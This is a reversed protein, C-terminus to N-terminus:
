RPLLLASRIANSALAYFTVSAILAAFLALMAGFAVAAAVMSVRHDGIRRRIGEGVDV